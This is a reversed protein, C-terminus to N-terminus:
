KRDCMDNSHIKDKLKLSLNSKLLPKHYNLAAKKMVKKSADLKNKEFHQIKKVANPQMATDDLWHRPRSDITASDVDATPRTMLDEGEDFLRWLELNDMDDTLGYQKERIKDTKEDVSFNPDKSIKDLDDLVSEIDAPTQETQLTRLVSGLMDNNDLFKVLDEKQYLQKIKKRGNGSWNEDLFKVLEHKSNSSLYHMDKWNQINKKSAPIMRHKIKNDVDAKLFRNEEIIWNKGSKRHVGLKYSYQSDPMDM